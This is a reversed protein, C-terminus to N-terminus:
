KEAIHACALDNLIDVASNTAVLLINEQSRAPNYRDLSRAVAGRAAMHCDERFEGDPM